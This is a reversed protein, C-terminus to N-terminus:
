LFSCIFLYGNTIVKMGIEMPSLDSFPVERTVLEWMLMAFSWMDASRQDVEEPSKQLVLVCWLSNNHMVWLWVLLLTMVDRLLGPCNAPTVCKCM